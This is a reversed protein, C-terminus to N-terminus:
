SRRAVNRDTSGGVRTTSQTPENQKQLLADSGAPSPTGRGVLITESLRTRQAFTGVASLGTAGLVVPDGERPSSQVLTAEGSIVRTAM